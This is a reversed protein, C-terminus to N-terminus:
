LVMLMVKVVDQIRAPDPDVKALVQLGQLNSTFFRALAQLDRGPTLEEQAEARLLLRYFLDEIWRLNEVVRQACDEDHPGLEVASNTLLCGKRQRDLVADQAFTRIFDALVAKASGPQELQHFVGTVFKQRYYDLASLYLTRKDGFTDYLSARNIGMEEVLDQVSTAEYGLRWFTTMAKELVTERDFEKHRAM